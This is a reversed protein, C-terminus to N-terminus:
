LIFCAKLCSYLTFSILIDDYQSANLYIYFMIFVIFINNAM